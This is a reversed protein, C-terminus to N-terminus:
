EAVHNVREYLELWEPSVKKSVDNPSVIHLRAIEAITETYQLHLTQPDNGFYASMESKNDWIWKSYDTCGDSNELSDYVKESWFNSDNLGGAEVFREWKDHMIEHALVGRVADETLMGRHTGPSYLFIEKTEPIYEAMVSVSSGPLTKVTNFVTIKKPDYGLESAIREVTGKPDIYLMNRYQGEGKPASGGVKGPRGAHGANGSGQGGHTVFELRAELIQSDLSRERSQRTVSPEQYQNDTQDFAAGEEQAAAEEEEAAAEEAERKQKATMVYDLYRKAFEDPPMITEPAGGSATSLAGAVTSAISAKEAENMTFLSPWEVRYDESEPLIGLEMLRDIFPRLVKPEAFNVQRTKIFDAFNKDDQSSALQGMESGLLIRKPIQMAGAIYDVLLNFQTQGDVPNGGLDEVNVGRLRMYRRLGHMYEEIEDQMAKYEPSDVAPMSFGEQATLAMGRYILLWFAESSGGVVKEIDYLRNLIKKLRPVGYIRSRSKGDKIHVVRSYHVRVTEQTGLDKDGIAVQYFNPLGFRESEPDKEVDTADISSTGEDHVSVYALSDSKKAPEELRGPLGLFILAFRSYGCAADADNFASWLDLRKALSSFEQQLESPNDEADDAEQGDDLFFPRERWTEDPISDVVRTAIGDRDYFGFYVDYNPNRSYGFSDYLDRKGDFSKGMKEALAARSVLISENLRMIAEDHAKNSKTRTRSPTKKTPM